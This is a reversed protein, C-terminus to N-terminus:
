KLGQSNLRELLALERKYDDRPDVSVAKRAADIAKDHHHGARFARALAMLYQANRGQSLQVAKTAHEIAEFASTYTPDDPDSYITAVLFHAHANNKDYRLATLYDKVAGPLNKSNEYAMGRSCYYISNTPKLKIAETFMDIAIRYAKGHYHAVGLNHIYEPNNPELSVARKYADAAHGVQRAALMCDGLASQYRPNSPANVAASQCLAVARDVDGSHLAVLGLDCQFKSNTPQLKVAKELETLASVIESNRQLALGLKYHAMANDPEANLVEQYNAILDKAKSNPKERSIAKALLPSITDKSDNINETTTNTDEASSREVGEEQPLSWNSKIRKSKAPVLPIEAQAPQEPYSTRAKFGPEDIENPLREAKDGGSREPKLPDAKPPTEDNAVVEARVAACALSFSLGAIMVFTSRRM